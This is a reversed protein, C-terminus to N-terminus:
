RLLTISGAKNIKVNNYDDEGDFIWYYTGTPLNKGNYNGDWYEEFSKANFVQQGYRNFIKLTNFTIVGTTTFNFHDNIGDNNPTFTNPATITYAPPPIITVNVAGVATCGTANTAKIYYTGGYKVATYNVVPITGESNSYYSYTLGNQPLFAKSLDVTTPFNVAAPEITTIGPGRFVVHVPLINTCGETSVGKIYYTNYTGDGTISNPNYLYVTALSDTFYSFSTGADSGATVSPATLDLPVGPCAVITDPVVLKFGSNIQNITTYLTDICGLGDYPFIQLAYKSLDPPVPSIRYSQGRWIPKTLDAANYWYYDAFGTPGILTVANQGLCYANGTIPSSTTNDEIDIYAYGFHGGLTCDNTTFELRITKGLYSKLDITATSWEKYFISNGKAGPVTSLKFGPLESGAVFDFSPCDIYLNDTVDYVKATFQPQQYAAHAPNELVVAYNFIISYAGTSPATFTYTVREAQSQTQSNGLMISYKSGNPCQVPFKGYPDLEKTAGIITHRGPLPSTPSVSIVGTASISGAFCEWNDFTGNEFGINPTTQAFAGFNILLFFFLYKIPSM